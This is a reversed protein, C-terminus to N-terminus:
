RYKSIVVIKFHKKYNGRLFSGWLIKSLYHVNGKKYPKKFLKKFSTTLGALTVKPMKFIQHKGENEEEGKRGSEEEKWYWWWWQTHGYLSLSEVRNKHALCIKKQKKIVSVINEQNIM